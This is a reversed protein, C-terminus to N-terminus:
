TTAKTEKDNTEEEDPDYPYSCSFIVSGTPYVWTIGETRVVVLMGHADWYIYANKLTVKVKNPPQEVSWVKIEKYHGTM